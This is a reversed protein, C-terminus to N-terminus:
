RMNKLREYENPNERKLKTLEALSMKDFQEKTISSGTGYQIDPRTKLFDAMVQKSKRADVEALIKMKGDFDGDVEAVAMRSAEEATWGQGLYSKEYSNIANERKLRKFEEERQAEQEAKEMSAQEKESLTAQYKKRWEGAEASLKSNTRKLKAIENMLEQESFNVEAAQQNQQTDTQQNENTNVNTENVDSM